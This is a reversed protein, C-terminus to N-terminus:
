FMGRFMSSVTSVTQEMIELEREAKLRKREIKRVRRKEVNEPKFYTERRKKKSAARKTELAENKKYERDYDRYREAEIMDGCLTCLTEELQNKYTPVVCCDECVPEGCRNCEFDAENEECVHCKM